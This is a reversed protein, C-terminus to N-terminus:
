SKLTQLLTLSTAILCKYLKMTSGHIASVTFEASITNLRTLKTIRQLKNFGTWVM